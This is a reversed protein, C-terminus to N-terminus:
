SANWHGMLQLAISDFGTAIGHAHLVHFTWETCPVCIPEVRSSVVALTARPRSCVCCALDFDPMIPPGNLFHPVTPTAERKGCSEKGGVVGANNQIQRLRSLSLPDDWM